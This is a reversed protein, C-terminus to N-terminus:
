KSKFVKQMDVTIMNLSLLFSAQFPASRQQDITNLLLSVQNLEDTKWREFDKVDAFKKASYMPNLDNEALYKRFLIVNKVLDNGTSNQVMTNKSRHPFYQTDISKWIEEFENPSIFESFSTKLTDKLLTLHIQDSELHSVNVQAFLPLYVCQVCMRFAEMKEFKTYTDIEEDDKDLVELQSLLESLNVGIDELPESPSDTPKKVTKTDIDEKKIHRFSIWESFSIGQKQNMKEKGGKKKFDKMVFDRALSVRQLANSPVSIIGTFLKDGQSKANKIFAFSPLKLRSSLTTSERVKDSSSPASSAKNSM